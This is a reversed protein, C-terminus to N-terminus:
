RGVPPGAPPITGANYAMPQVPRQQAYIITPQQPYAQVPQPYGQQLIPSPTYPPAYNVPYAYTGKM